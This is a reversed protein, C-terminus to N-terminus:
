GGTGRNSGDDSPITDIGVTPMRLKESKRIAKQPGMSQPRATQPLIPHIEHWTVKQSHNKRRMSKDNDTNLPDFPEIRFSIDNCCSELGIYMCESSTEAFATILMHHISHMHISRTYTHSALNESVTKRNRNREPIRPIARALLLDPRGQICPQMLRPGEPRHRTRMADMSEQGSRYQQTPGM